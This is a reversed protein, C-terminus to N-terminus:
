EQTKLPHQRDQLPLTVTQRLLASQYAGCIMELSEVATEIGAQLPEGHLIAQM